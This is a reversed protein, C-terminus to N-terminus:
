ADPDLDLVDADQAATERATIASATALLDLAWSHKCCCDPHQRADPCCCQLSTAQYYLEASQSSQVLYVGTEATELIKSSPLVPPGPGIPDPEAPVARPMTEVIGRVTALPLGAPPAATTNQTTPSTASM